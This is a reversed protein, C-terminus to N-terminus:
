TAPKPTLVKSPRVSAVRSKDGDFFTDAPHGDNTLAHSLLGMKVLQSRAFPNIGETF